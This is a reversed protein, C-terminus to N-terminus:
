DPHELFRKAETSTQKGMAEEHLTASCLVIQRDPRVQQFLWEVQQVVRSVVSPHCLMQGTELLHLPFPFFREGM